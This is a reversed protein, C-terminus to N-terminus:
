GAAGIRTMFPGVVQILSLSVAGVLLAALLGVALPRLGLNKLRDFSTGLGVSAMAVVLCWGAVQGTARIFREWAETSLLGFPQSGLDGLTRLLTMAVFGFVFLPVMQALKPRSLSRREVASRHYVIGMIPIVALMFLNRVLKTVTATDLAQGTGFQQQYVMGAGAVQATDHIATGLFLGALQPNGDFIWHSVFPYSMLALLGFVTICGVAYSVEDDEARIVPATAVIATNGCIATGVAILTGLRGPLGLTRNIWTVLLLACAICSVVIPVAVLGITGAAELSLRIGLLAVGIRLIRKLCLQLGAEYVAPLGIGNRICLGLLIAVLIPSLPTKEFGLLSLGFWDALIGGLFALLLALAVGPLTTGALEFVHNSRRQWPSWAARESATEAPDVYEPVGELSGLWRFLEPNKYPDGSRLGSAVQPM